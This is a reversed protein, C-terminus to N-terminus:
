ETPPFLVDNVVHVIDNSASINLPTPELRAGGISPVGADVFARDGNLMKFSRKNLVSNSHHRGRTVHYGFSM